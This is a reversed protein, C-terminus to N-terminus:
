FNIRSSRPRLTSSYQKEQLPKRLRVIPRKPAEVSSAKTFSVYLVCSNFAVICCFVAVIAASYGGAHLIVCDSDYEDCYNERARKYPRFGEYTKNFDGNVMVHLDHFPKSQLSLLRSTQSVVGNSEIFNVFVGDFSTAKVLCELPEERQYLDLHENFQTQLCTYFITCQWAGESVHADSSVGFAKCSNTAACVKECAREAGDRGEEEYSREMDSFENVSASALTWTNTMDTQCSRSERRQQYNRSCEIEVGQRSSRIEYVAENCPGFCVAAAEALCLLLLTCSHM